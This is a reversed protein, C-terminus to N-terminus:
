NELDDRETKAKYRKKDSYPSQGGAFYREIALSSLQKNQDETVTMLHNGHFDHCGLCSAWQKKSVLSAHSVKLPDKKLKLKEHCHQCFTKDITVRRGSHERHCANCEHAKIEKRAKTYRPEFFRFVPHHDKPRQHCALCDSNNVKTHGIAASNKRVGLMHWMNAQIQQRMTGEATLHCQECKINEHGTNMPGPSHMWESNPANLLVVIVLSIAIGIILAAYRRNIKPLGKKM